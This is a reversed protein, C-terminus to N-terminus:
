LQSKSCRFLNLRYLTKSTSVYHTANQLTGLHESHEIGIASDSALYYSVHLAPAEITVPSMADVTISLPQVIQEHNDDALAHAQTSVSCVFALVLALIGFFTKIKM